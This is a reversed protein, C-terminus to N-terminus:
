VLRRTNRECHSVTFNNYPKKEYSMIIEWNISGTIPAHVVSYSYNADLKKADFIYKRWQLAPEKYENETLLFLISEREKIKQVIDQSFGYGSLLDSHENAKNQDCVLLWALDGNKALFLFSGSGDVLYYEVAQHQDKVKHFLKRYAEQNLLLNLNRGGMNSAFKSLGDFYKHTLEDISALLESYLSNTTKLIFKDILGNNFANIAIDKDAEATLLIKYIPKDKIKECFEIGNIDPMEYDVVLVAVNDFRSQDYIIEMLGVNDAGQIQEINNNNKMGYSNSINDRSKAILRMADDPNTLMIMNKNQGFELSLVDLFAQNDDLFIINVPHYFCSPKSFNIKSM